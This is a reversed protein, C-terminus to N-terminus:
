QNTVLTSEEHAAHQTGSAEQSKTIDWQLDFLMISEYIQEYVAVKALELFFNTM